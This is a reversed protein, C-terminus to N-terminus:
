GPGPGRWHEAATEKSTVAPVTTNVAGQVILVPERYHAVPPESHRVPAARGTRASRKAPTGNRPTGYAFNANKLGEGAKFVEALCGGHRAVDLVKM